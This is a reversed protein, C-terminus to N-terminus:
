TPVSEIKGLTVARIIAWAALPKFVSARQAQSLAPTEKSLALRNPLLISRRARRGAHTSRGGSGPPAATAGEIEVFAARDGRPV